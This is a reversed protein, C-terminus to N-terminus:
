VLHSQFLSATRGTAQNVDSDVDDPGQDPASFAFDPPGAPLIVEVVYDGSPM